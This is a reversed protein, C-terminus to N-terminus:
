SDSVGQLRFPGGLCRRLETLVAMGPRGQHVIVAEHSSEDLLVGNQQAYTFPLSRRGVSAVPMAQPEIDSLATM